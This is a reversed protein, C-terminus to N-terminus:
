AKVTKARQSAIAHSINQAADRVKGLMALNADKLQAPTAAALEHAHKAADELETAANKLHQRADNHQAEATTKLSAALEKAKAAAQQLDARVAAHNTATAEEIRKHLHQADSRAQALTDSLTSM